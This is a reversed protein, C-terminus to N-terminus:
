GESPPGSRRRHHSRGGPARVGRVRGLVGADELDHSRRRGDILLYPPGIMEALSQEHPTYERVTLKDRRSRFRSRTRSVTSASRLTTRAARRRWTVGDATLLARARSRPASPSARTVRLPRPITGVGRAASSAGM